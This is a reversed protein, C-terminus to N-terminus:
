KIGAITCPFEGTEVRGVEGVFEIVAQIEMFVIVLGRFGKKGEQIITKPVRVEGPYAM